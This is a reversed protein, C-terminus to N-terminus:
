QINDLKLHIINGNPFLEAMIEKRLEATKDEIKKMIELIQIADQPLSNFFESEENLEINMFVESFKIPVKKQVLVM